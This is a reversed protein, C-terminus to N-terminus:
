WTQCTQWILCTQCLIVFLVSNDNRVHTDFVHKICCEKLLFSDMSSM